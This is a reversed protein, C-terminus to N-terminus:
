ARPLKLNEPQQDRHSRHCFNGSEQIEAALRDRIVVGQYLLLEAGCAVNLEHEDSQAEGVRAISGRRRRRERPQATACAPRAGCPTGRGPHV